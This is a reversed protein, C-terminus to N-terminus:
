SITCCASTSSESDQHKYLLGVRIAEDFVEKLGEQTLASCELHAVCGLEKALRDGQDKSVMVKGKSALHFILGEDTRCDSKTGVLIKPVDPCYEQLEPIWRSKVNEFSEPSIISYFIIFCDTQPYALPRLRDYDEQGASDWLTFNIIKGDVMVNTQYNDFVTPAYNGVFENSTYSVLACTKGIAGDGVVVCKLNSIM